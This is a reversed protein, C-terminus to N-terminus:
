EADVSYIDNIVDKYKDNIVRRKLKMSPTLEGSEPTWEDVVVRYKKIKEFPALTSNVDAIVAKYLSQVAPSELVAKRDSPLETGQQKAALALNAFNPSILASVFKRKDGLLAVNGVLNSAKLKGEVFSPAIFKGASLKILEKKRDTIFIFGDDDCHGIDGTKFFGDETFVEKTAEPKNWYGQFVSPGKVELEGDDAFRVVINTLAKGISGVRNYTPHNLGIVPSTETLGYGELIRINAAAFWNANDLGLPAGGAIYLRVRGGFAEKIKSFVLKNALKWLPSAPTKGALVAERHKTGQGIAWAFIKAKVPSALSKTEASHRIREFVRPVAVLITPKVTQMAPPLRDLRSVYALVCGNAYMEYDLIRATIHSLPLFSICSDSPNFDIFEVTYNINQAINNHTLMVGKPEGTTGSTYVITALDEPKAEALKADFAADRALDKDADALLRSFSEAGPFEGADMVIVREIGPTKEHISALKEYQDKTSVVAIRAGSDNLMYTTQEATLTPFLPVGVAGIALAAFDTVAWEWRNESILAVRDGKKIGWSELAKAFARVRAYLQASSIPHWSHDAAQTLVVTTDGKSAARLFLDNLTCLDLIM